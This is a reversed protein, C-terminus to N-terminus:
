ISRYCLKQQKLYEDDDDFPLIYVIWLAPVIVVKFIKSGRSRWDYGYQCSSFFLSSVYLIISLPNWGSTIPIAQIITRVELVIIGVVDIILVLTQSLTLYGEILWILLLWFM